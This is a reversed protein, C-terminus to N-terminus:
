FYLQDSYGANSYPLKSLSIYPVATNLTINANKDFQM